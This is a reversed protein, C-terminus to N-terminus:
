PQNADAEQRRGCTRLLVDEVVLCESLELDSLEFTERYARCAIDMTVRGSAVQERLWQKVDYRQMGNVMKPEEQKGAGLTGACNVVQITGQETLEIKRNLYWAAKKLDEVGGKYKWRALYKLVNGEHYELGLGEIAEIVDITGQRYHSPYNVPEHAETM